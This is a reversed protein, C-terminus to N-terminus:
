EFINNTETAPTLLVTAFSVLLATSVTGIVEEKQSESTYALYGIIAANGLIYGAMFKEFKPIKKTEQSAFAEELQEHELHETTM